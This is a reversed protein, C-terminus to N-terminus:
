IGPIARHVAHTKQYESIKPVALQGLRHGSATERREKHRPPGSAPSPRCPPDLTTTRREGCMTGASACKTSQPRPPNWFWRLTNTRGYPRSRITELVKQYGWRRVWACSNTNGLAHDHIRRLLANTHGVYFKPDGTEPDARLELVYVAWMNPTEGKRAVGAAARQLQFRQEDTDGTQRHM